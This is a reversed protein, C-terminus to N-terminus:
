YGEEYYAIEEKNASTGEDYIPQFKDTGYTQSNVMPVTSALSGGFIGALAMVPIAVIMLILVLSIAVKIALRRFGKYLADELKSESKDSDTGQTSNTSDNNSSNNKFIDTPKPIGNNRSRNHFNNQLGKVAPDSSNSGRNAQPTKQSNQSRPVQSAQPQSPKGGMANAANGLKNAAGSESAKNLGDQLKKGGPMTNTAKTLGRGLADSARGGTLKDAAEIGRGIAQGHPGGFTKAIKAGQRVLNANNEDARQKEDPTMTSM